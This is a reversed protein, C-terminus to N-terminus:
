LNDHTNSSLRVEGFVQSIEPSTIFDGHTGFVDTGDSHTKTYYGETTHSLCLQMYTSVPIPGSAKISDEIIKQITNHSNRRPQSVRAARSVFCFERFASRSINRSLFMAIISYGPQTGRRHSSSSVPSHRRRSRLNPASSFSDLPKALRETGYVYTCLREECM